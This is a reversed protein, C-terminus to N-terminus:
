KRRKFVGIIGDRGGAKASGLSSIERQLQSELASLKAMDHPPTGAASVKRVKIPTGSSQRDEFCGQPYSEEVVPATGSASDPKVPEAAERPTPEAANAEEPSYFKEAVEGALDTLKVRLWSASDRFVKANAEYGKLNRGLEAIHMEYDASKRQIEAVSDLSESLRRELDLCRAERENIQRGAEALRKELETYKQDVGNLKGSAQALAAELEAAKKVAAELEKTRGGSDAEAKEAAARAAALLNEADVLKAELEHRGRENADDREIESRLAEIESKLKLESAKLGSVSGNLRQREADFELDKAALSAESARRTKESEKLSKEAAIVREVLAAGTTGPVNGPLADKVTGGRVFLIGDAPVESMDKLRDVYEKAFPGLVNLSEGVELVICDFGFDPFSVASRWVNGDLSVPTQATVEGSLVMDRIRKLDAPGSKSGKADRWFWDQVGGEANKGTM